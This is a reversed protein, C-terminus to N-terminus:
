VDRCLVYSPYRALIPLSMDSKVLGKSTKVLSTLKFNMKVLHGKQCMTLYTVKILNVLWINCMGNMNSGKTFFYMDM